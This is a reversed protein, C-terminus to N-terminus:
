RFVNDSREDYGVDWALSGCLGCLPCPQHKTKVESLQRIQEKIGLMLKGYPTTCDFEKEILHVGAKYGCNVCRVGCEEIMYLVCWGRNPELENANKAILDAVLKSKAIGITHADKDIVQFLNRNRSM